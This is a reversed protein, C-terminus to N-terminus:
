LLIGTIPSKDGLSLLSHNFQHLLPQFIRIDLALVVVLVVFCQIRCKVYHLKTEAQCMGVDKLNWM